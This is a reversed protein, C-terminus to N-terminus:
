NQDEYEETETTTFVEEYYIYTFGSPYTGEEEDEYDDSFSNKKKM